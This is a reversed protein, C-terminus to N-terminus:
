FEVCLRPSRERRSRDRRWRTCSHSFFHDNRRDILTLDVLESKLHQAASLGGFGGGVIVVKCANSV